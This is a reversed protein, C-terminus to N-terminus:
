RFRYDFAGDPAGDRSWREATFQRQYWSPYPRVPESVEDLRAVEDAALSWRAAALNDELQATTRAGVIVSTVGRKALLWNLAVQAVSADHAAALERMVDIIAFGRDTDIHGVGLDGIKGRRTDGSAIFYPKGIYLGTVALVLLSIAAVWHMARLPAGWLYVWRYSGSPPPVKRALTFGAANGGPAGAAPTHTTM